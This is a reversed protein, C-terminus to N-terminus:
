GGGGKEERFDPRTGLGVVLLKALLINFVERIMVAVDLGGVEEVFGGFGGEFLRFPEHKRKGKVRLLM